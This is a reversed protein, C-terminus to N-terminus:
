TRGCHMCARYHVVAAQYESLHGWSLVGGLITLTKTFELCTWERIGEPVPNTLNRQANGYHTVMLNRGPPHPM